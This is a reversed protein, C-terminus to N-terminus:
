PSTSHTNTGTADGSIPREIGEKSAGQFTAANCIAAVAALQQVNEKVAMNTESKVASDLSAPTFITDFVAVDNVTMRNQTLTGTKDSFVYEIQGLEEVLSSTRCVAPTDTKAYYMDLDFNILQAQQFKVVEM